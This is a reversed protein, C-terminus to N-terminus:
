GHEEQDRGGSYSPNCTHAVLAWDELGNQKLNNKVYPRMSKALAPRPNQDKRGRGGAYSPNSTHVVMGSKTKSILTKSVKKNRGSQGQIAIRWTRGGLYSPNCIHAM